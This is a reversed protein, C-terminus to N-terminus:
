TNRHGTACCCSLSYAYEAHHVRYILHISVYELNTNDCFRSYIPVYYALQTVESRMNGGRLTTPITRIIIISIYFGGRNVGSSLSRGPVFGFSGRTKQGGPPRRRIHAGSTPQGRRFRFALPRRGCGHRLLGDGRMAATKQLQYHLRSRFPTPRTRAHATRTRRHTTNLLLLFLSAPTVQAVYDSALILEVLRQRKFMPVESILEAIAGANRLEAAPLQLVADAGGYGSSGGSAEM